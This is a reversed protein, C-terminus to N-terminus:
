ESRVQVDTRNDISWDVSFSTMNDTSVIEGDKIVTPKGRYPVYVICEFSENKAQGKILGEIIENQKQTIKISDNHSNVLSSLRIKICYLEQDVEEIKKLINDCNKLINDFIKM